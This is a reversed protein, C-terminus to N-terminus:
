GRSGLGARFVERWFRVCFFFYYEEVVRFGLCDFRFSLCFFAEGLVGLM